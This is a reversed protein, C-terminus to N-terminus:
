SRSRGSFPMTYIKVDGSRYEWRGFDGGRSGELRIVELGELALREVFGSLNAEKLATFFKRDGEVYRLNSFAGVEPLKDAILSAVAAHLIPKDGYQLTSITSDQARYNLDNQIFVCRSGDLLAVTQLQITCNAVFTESGFTQTLKSASSRLAAAQKTVTLRLAFPEQELSEVCQIVQAFLAEKHSGRLVGRRYESHSWGKRALARYVQEDLPDDKRLGLFRQAEPQAGFFESGFTINPLDHTSSLMQHRPRTIGLRRGAVQKGDEPAVLKHLGSNAGDAYHPAAPSELLQAVFRELEGQGMTGINPLDGGVSELYKALEAQATAFNDEILNSIERLKSEHHHEIKAM